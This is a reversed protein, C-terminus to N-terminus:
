AAESEHSVKMDKQKLTRRETKQESTMQRRRDPGFFSPAKIYPRPKDIIHLLRHALKEATLPKVMVETAGTDRGSLVIRMNAHASCFLIPLFRVSEEDHTRLWEMFKLGDEQPPLLDTIVIDIHNSPPANINRLNVAEKADQVSCTTIIKGVNFERLMSTMLDAM